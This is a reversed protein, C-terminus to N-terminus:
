KPRKRNKDSYRIVRIITWLISGFLGCCFVEGLLIKVFLPYASMSIGDQAELIMTMYISNLIIPIICFVYPRKKRLLYISTCSVIMVGSGVLVEVGPYGCLTSGMLWGVAIGPVAVPTLAALPLMCDAFRLSDVNETPSGFIILFIMYLIAIITFHICQIKFANDNM